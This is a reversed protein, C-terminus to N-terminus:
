KDLITINGAGIEIAVEKDTDIREEPAKIEGYNTSLEYNSRFEKPVTLNVDGKNSKIALKKLFENDELCITIDLSDKVNKAISLGSLNVFNISLSNKKAEIDEIKKAFSEPINGAVIVRNGQGDAEKIVINLDQSLGIIEIKSIEESSLTWEKYVSITNENMYCFLFIAVTMICAISVIMIKKRKM